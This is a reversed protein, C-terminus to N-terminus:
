DNEDIRLVMQNSRNDVYRVKRINTDRNTVLTADVGLSVLNNFVNHAMGGNEKQKIPNFVPVPAEPSLKTIEGYVFIDKCSDGVILIKM